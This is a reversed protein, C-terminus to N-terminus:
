GAVESRLKMSHIIIYDFELSKLACKLKVRLLFLISAYFQNVAFVVMLLTDLMM